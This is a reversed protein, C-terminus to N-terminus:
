PEMGTKARARNGPGGGSGGQIQVRMGPALRLQGEVVVTEGPSLGKEIVLDEAVRSGTSVPRSEVTRDGKVVFVYSGDQGTQVAQNPVVMADHQTSLRITVRVFEGPWLKNGGNAFSGKIKITGTTSDVANDIFSVEGTEVQSPDNQPSVMVPQGKQIDKLRMEPVSFTVYIPQVVNITMLDVNNATVVNGLKVNLNGTRGDIPSFISTYGFQVKINEVAARSAGLTAEASRLAAEDAKVTAASADASTRMQEAQEKSILGHELLSAYRAAEAQAYKANATDRILNAEIQGQQAQDRAYNAEAQNLQAQLLRPDIEFLLDGKKVFDGERFYVKTLLGGVQAKVSITSYAEVNGVVQIDIPVDRQTVAAVTVPVISDGGGRRGTRGPGGKGAGAKAADGKAPDAKSACGTWMWSSVLLSLAVFALWGWNSLSLRNNTVKLKMKLVPSVSACSKCIRSFRVSSRM